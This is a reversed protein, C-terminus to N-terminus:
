PIDFMDVVGAVLKGFEDLVELFPRRYIAPLSIENFTILRSFYCDPKPESRPYEFMVPKNELGPMDDLRYEPATNGKGRILNIRPNVLTTILREHKRLIDLQHLSWLLGNGGEYPCLSKIIKKDRTSLWRKGEIGYKPDLSEQHSIYFPFHTDTSPRVGSRLALAACSLDLASRFSGIIAGIEAHFIAPLPSKADAVAAMKGHPPNLDVPVWQFNSAEWERFRGALIPLQSEGWEIAARADLLDDRM